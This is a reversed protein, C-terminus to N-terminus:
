SGGGTGRQSPSPPSRPEVYCEIWYGDPDRCKFGTYEPTEERESVDIGAAALHDALDVVEAASGAIFGFHWDSSAASEGHHLALEFGHDDTIFVTGDDYRTLVRDFSFWNAYFAISADIDVVSLNLHGVHAM